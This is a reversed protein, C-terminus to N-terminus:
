AHVLPGPNKLYRTRIAEASRFALACVTNTPNYGANQPFASAGQVFLNPVDWSQLYRNVASTSRDNGMIAGGKGSDAFMILVAQFGEDAGNHGFEKPNKCEGVLFGLGV